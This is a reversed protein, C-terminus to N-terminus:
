PGTAMEGKDATTGDDSVTAKQDVTVADDNYLSYTTATQTSRNRWSKYLYQIMKTLTQTAAPAEQGVEAHTDTDLVDKAEVNVEAKMATSMGGLDTLGAGAAGIEATDTLIAAVDAGNFPTSDALIADRIENIGDTALEAAGIADTAIAAATIAASQVASVDADVAGGVLANPASGAWLRVDVAGAPLIEYTNTAVAQTTAPAFTITDSAPTFGTILRTQSAITGSTFRIWSGKWYDTDAETRAADVMTTTTGSDATGTTLASPLRTQIDDTDTQVAAIDASVSAGAPAGLRAYNDGTQATHGNINDLYGARAATYDAALAASDTGRMADGNLGTVDTHIARIVEALSINNAPAAEAPFTTVGTTGVLVNILQKIYQMITDASTPDGAAAADALAGVVSALAANDTGRMDTNTTTTGITSNAKAYGTGDYDLELNDAATSDDSVHTVNVDPVGAAVEAPMIRFAAAIFNVTQADVTVSSVVVHYWSGVAYFGADTNDSLDISFGHIGTITDFDIGDTDLLTYGADSARQTTGGDKYIEIDTVALGTLTISAGTGGDFTDFFIPLTDNAPVIYVPYTM